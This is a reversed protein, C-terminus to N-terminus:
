TKYLDLSDGNHAELDKTIDPLLVAILDQKLFNQQWKPTGRSYEQINLSGDIREVRFRILVEDGFKAFGSMMQKLLAKTQQM